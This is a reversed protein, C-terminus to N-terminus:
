ARRPDFLKCSAAPRASHRTAGHFAHTLAADPSFPTEATAAADAAEEAPLAWFRLRRESTAQIARRACRMAWLTAPLSLAMSITLLRLALRFGGATRAGGVCLVLLAQIASFTM